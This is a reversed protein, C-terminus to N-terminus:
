PEFNCRVDFMFPAPPLQPFRLSWPFPAIHSCDSVLEPVNTICFGPTCDACSLENQCSGLAAGDLQALECIRYDSTAEKAWQELADSQLSTERFGQSEDCERVHLAAVLVRCEVAGADDKLPRDDSCRARCDLVFGADFLHRPDHAYTQLEATCAGGDGCAEPTDLRYDAPPLPSQDERTSALFPEVDVRAPLAGLVARERETAPEIERALLRVWHEAVALPQQVDPQATENGEIAAAVAASWRSADADSHEDAIWALEADEAFSHVAADGAGSAGVVIAFRRVLSPRAPDAPPTCSEVAYVRSSDYNEIFAGAVSARLDRGEQDPTDDVVILQVQPTGRAPQYFQVSGQRVRGADEVGSPADGDGCGALLSLTLLLPLARM